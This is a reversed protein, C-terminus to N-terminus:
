ETCNCTHCDKERQCNKHVHNLIDHGVSTVCHWQYTPPTSGEPKGAGGETETQPLQVGEIGGIQHVLGCRGVVPQFPLRVEHKSM